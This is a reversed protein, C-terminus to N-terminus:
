GKIVVGFGHLLGEAEPWSFIAGKLYNATPNIRYHRANQLNAKELRSRDFQADSLDCDDLVSRSLDTETFDCEKLDCSRFLSGPMKKQYFSSHSLRCGEFRINWGLPNATEFHIGLAKCDKWHLDRMVTKNFKCLSLNCQVFLCDIFRLGSLDQESLDIGSFECGEYEQEPLFQPPNERNFMQGSVYDM